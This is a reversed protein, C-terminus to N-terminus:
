EICKPAGGRNIRLYKRTDCRGWCTLADQDEIKRM